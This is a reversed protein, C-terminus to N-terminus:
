VMLKFGGARGLGSVAPPPFVNVLADPVEKGLRKRLATVIADSTLDPSRREDFDDLIIFMSGFSSGYASLMFSNGAVSNVNKIGPTEKVIREVTATADSTRAASTSDPMQVSAVLYGKDQVPIFGSPLRTFGWYTLFLLGGYVALVLMPVRLLKGVT